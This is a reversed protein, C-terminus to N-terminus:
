VNSTLWKDLDTLLSVYTSSITTLISRNKGEDYSHTLENRDALMQLWAHGDVLLGDQIAQKIVVRPGKVDAYGAEQALYDQLTKWALEFTFEFRLIAGDKELENLEPYAALGTTLQGLARQFSEHREVWRKAM